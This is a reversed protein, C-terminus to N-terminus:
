QSYYLEDVKVAIEEAIYEALKIGDEGLDEKSKPILQPHKKMIDLVYITAVAPASYRKVAIKACDEECGEITITKHNKAFEREKGGGKHKIDGAMFLPQCLITTTYPRLKEVLIRTAVRTLTGEVLNEGSCAIVGIKPKTVITPKNENM